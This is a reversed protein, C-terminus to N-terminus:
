CSEGFSVNFAVSVGLTYRTAHFNLNVMKFNMVLNAGYDLEKLNYSSDEPKIPSNSFYVDGPRFIKGHVYGIQPVIRIRKTVPFQYGVHFAYGHEQDRFGDRKDKNYFDFDAYIGYATVNVNMAPNNIYRDTGGFGTGFQKYGFGFALSKHNAYRFIDRRSQSFGTLAVMMLMMLLLVKRRM